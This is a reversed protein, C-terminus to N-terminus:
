EGSTLDTVLVVKLNEHWSEAIRIVQKGLRIAFHATPEPRGSLREQVFAETVLPDHGQSYAWSRLLFEQPTGPRVIHPSEPFFTQEFVRNCGFLRNSDDYIVAALPLADVFEQLAARSGPGRPQYEAKRGTLLYDLSTEALRAIKVLVDYPAESRGIEYKSYRATQIGLARAMQNQTYALSTRLARLRRGFALRIDAVHTHPM